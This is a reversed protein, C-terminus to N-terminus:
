HWKGLVPVSQCCGVLAAWFPQKKATKAKYQTKGLSESSIRTQSDDGLIGKVKYWWLPSQAAAPLSFAQKLCLKQARIDQQPDKMNNAMSASHNGPHSIKRHAPQQNVVKTWIQICGFSWYKSKHSFRKLHYHCEPWSWRHETNRMNQGELVNVCSPSCPLWWM